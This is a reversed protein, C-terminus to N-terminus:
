LQCGSQYIQMVVNGQIARNANDTLISNTDEDALTVDTLNAFPTKTQKNTLSLCVWLDSGLYVQTRYFRDELVRGFYWHVPLDLYTEPPWLRLLRADADPLPFGQLGCLASSFRWLIHDTADVPVGALQWYSTRRSLLPSSLLFAVLAAEPWNPKRRKVVVM